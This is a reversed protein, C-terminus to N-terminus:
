RYVVVFGAHNFAAGTKASRLDGVPHFCQDYGLSRLSRGDIRTSRLYFNRRDPIGAEAFQRAHQLMGERGDPSVIGISIDPADTVRNRHSENMAGPHFATIQNDDLDTTIFAQATFTGEVTRIHSPDMANSWMMTNSSRKM